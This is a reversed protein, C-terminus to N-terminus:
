WDMLEHKYVRHEWHCTHMIDAWSTWTQVCPTRLPMYAHYWDVFNMNTFMTNETARICAILRHTWTQLCPTRLPMYAHYWGMFNMSTFVTNETAHICAILGHLEHKCARHEWHCTHMIDAWSTWTQLCPTRLPVYAHYWDMFNMNTFVTNEPAHICSILGHLEHKYVRHEWHCTHMIDAWSTWTQLCPTRLPVYAHYWDMFNMNTFVTNEPAHICSILGHLEHKYVRHEWHCTHM